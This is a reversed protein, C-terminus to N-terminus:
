RKRIYYYYAWLDCVILEEYSTSNKCESYSSLHFTKFYCCSCNWLFSKKKGSLFREVEPFGVGTHQCPILSRFPGWLHPELSIFHDAWPWSGAPGRASAPARQWWRMKDPPYCVASDGNVSNGRWEPLHQRKLFSCTSRLYHSLYFGFGVSTITGFAITFLLIVTDVSQSCVCCSFYPSLCSTHCGSLSM